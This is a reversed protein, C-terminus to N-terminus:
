WGGFPLGVLPEVYHILPSVGSRRAAQVVQKARTGSAVLRDGDLAVWRGSYDQGHEALWRFEKARDGTRPQRRTGLGALVRALEREVRESRARGHFM